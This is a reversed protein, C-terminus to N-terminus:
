RTEEERERMIKDIFDIKVGHKKAVYDCMHSYSNTGAVPRVIKDIDKLLEKSAQDTARAESEPEIM